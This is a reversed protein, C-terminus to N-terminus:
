FLYDVLELLSRLPRKYWPVPKYVFPAGARAWDREFLRDRVTKVFSPSTSFVDLEQHDLLSRADGNASGTAVWRDDVAFYKVHLHAVPTEPDLYERVEAGAAALRKLSEHNLARLVPQEKTGGPTMVRVKVGRKVAGLLHKELDDDWIYQQEVLVERQAGDIAKFVADRIEFRGEPVSTVAVQADVDGAPAPAQPVPLQDGGITRWETAFEQYLDAVVPGRWRVMLDHTTSEFTTGFNTGGAMALSEDALLLKRHTINFRWLLGSKRLKSPYFRLDIGAQRLDNIYPKVGKGESGSGTQDLLLKVQVGAKARAILLPVLQKGYTGGFEFMEIWLTRQAGTIFAKVAPFTEATGVALVAENGRTAGPAPRLPQAPALLAEGPRPGAAESLGPLGRGVAAAIALQTAPDQGARVPATAFGTRGCGTVLVLAAVITAIRTCGNAFM